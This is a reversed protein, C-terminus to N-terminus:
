RKEALHYQEGLRLTEALLATKRLVNLREVVGMRRRIKMLRRYIANVNILIRERGLWAAFPERQFEDSRLIALSATTAPREQDFQRRAVNWLFQWYNRVAEVGSADTLPGHGPVVIAPKLALIHDCAAIWKRVSGDWLIPMVGSFVIDGAMVVREEPLHVILDGATHAPGLEILEVRRGGVELQMRGSFTKTPYAPRIGSYDFPQMMGDFYDAAIEWRRHRPLPLRSIARFVTSVMGLKSMEEPGHRHMRHAAAKTAIIQRAEPLQNGFWHDGDAHTNVIPGIPANELLPRFGELMAATRPLDWLTDVLVSERHGCILATNGLGWNGDPTLWASVGPAIPHVGSYSDNALRLNIAPCKRRFISVRKAGVRRVM